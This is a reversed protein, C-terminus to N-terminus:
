CQQNGAVRQAKQQKTIKTRFKRLKDCLRCVNMLKTPSARNKHFEAVPLTEQCDSCRALGQDLLSRSLNPRM